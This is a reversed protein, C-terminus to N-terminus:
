AIEDTPKDLVWVELPNNICSTSIILVTKLLKLDDLLVSELGQKEWANNDNDVRSAFLQTIV